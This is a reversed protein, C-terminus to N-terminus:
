VSGLRQLMEGRTAHRCLRTKLLNAPGGPEARQVQDFRRSHRLGASTRTPSPSSNLKRPSPRSWPLKRGRPDRWSTSSSTKARSSLTTARWRSRPTTSLFMRRGTALFSDTGKRMTSGHWRVSMSRWAGIMRRRVIPLPKADSSRLVPAGPPGFKGCVGNKGFM